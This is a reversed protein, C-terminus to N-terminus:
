DSKLVDVVAQIEDDDMYQHGYFIKTERVPTGGEIAPKNM